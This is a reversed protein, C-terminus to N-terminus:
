KRGSFLDMLRQLSSIITRLLVLIEPISSGVQLQGGPEVTAPPQAQGEGDEGQPEEDLRHKGGEDVEPAPGGPAPITGTFQMSKYPWNTGTNWQSVVLSFGDTVGLQSGPVVYGGYLQAVRGQAHDEGAWSSGVLPTHLPATYLNDTPHNLVRVDIDYGGQPSADFNVLVWHGSELRRLSMEGFAQGSEVGELIPTSYDRWGWGEGDWGWKQWGQGTDMQDVPIRRMRIGESRNFRTTYAYVMGEDPAVDWTWLQAGHNDEAGDIKYLHQWTVGNDTSKWVETWLVNGLGQNVMVHLYIANGVTVVDSPLVTSFAAGGQDYEWFKQASNPDPGAARDWQIVGQDDVQGILGVPSRWGPGGVTDQSFTDGFVALLEGNPMTTMAGLDTGGIDWQGTHETGTLDRVKRFRQMDQRFRQMDQGEEQMTPINGNGIYEGTEQDRLGVAHLLEAMTGDFQNLDSPGFPPTDARDTFQHFITDPNPWRPSGPSAGYDPTWFWSVGERNPWLVLPGAGAHIGNRKENIYAGVRRPNGVYAQARAVWDNVGASQDGTVQHEADEVDIAVWVKPHLGGAEELQGTFTAWNDQGPRWFQYVGIFDLHGADALKVAQRYQRQFATDRHDGSGTRLVIGRYPYAETLDDPRYQSVDSFLVPSQDSLEGWTAGPRPDLNRAPSKVLPAQWGERIIADWEDQGVHGTPEWGRQKQLQIVAQALPEDERWRGNVPLGLSKQLRRAGEKQSATEGSWEGSVSEMPGDLPGYYWGAPLPFADPDAPAMLGLHGARLRNAFDAVRQDGEPFGIQYHMEDKRAWDRGWFIVGEFLKLGQRVKAVRDAPMVLLTWPYQTANIDVATGSLHNSNAVDNDRSWGWDDTGPPGDYLDIPEVNQHYWLMWAILIDGADGSRVRVSTRTGPVNRYETLSANVLRWGNESHTNGKYTRFGM